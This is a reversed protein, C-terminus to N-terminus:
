HYPYKDTFIQSLVIPIKVMIWNNYIIINSIFPYYRDLHIPRVIGVNYNIYVNISHTVGTWTLKKATSFVRRMEYRRWM